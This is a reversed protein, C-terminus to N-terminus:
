TKKTDMPPELDMVRVLSSLSPFGDHHWDLAPEQMRGIPCIRQAGFRVALDISEPVAPHIGITSIHKQLRGITRELTATFPKVVFTRHLPHDPIIEGPDFLVTWDLSNAPSEWLQAAPDNAARFRWDERFARIAAATAASLQIPGSSELQAALQAAFQDAREKVLFFQPSLCGLQDFASGDQVAGSIETKTWEGLVMAFSIKHGHPVFRQWPQVRGAFEQITRDSGFVVVVAAKELWEPLLQLSLSPQLEKPLLEVFGRVEVLDNSPLKIWNEAGVLIGRMLSQLAAHPTEGAVVHLIPTCPILRRYRGGYPAWSSTEFEAGLERTVWDRLLQPTIEGLWRFGQASEAIAQVRELLNM